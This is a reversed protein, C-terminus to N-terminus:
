QNEAMVRQVAPRAAVFDCLAGLKPFREKIGEYENPHWGCLMYLYLDAASFTVGLVFGSIQSELLALHADFEKLAAEQVGDVSTADPQTTFRQSYYFRLVSGYVSTALFSMWQLFRAHDTTGPMPALHAAGHVSALHICIAASEFMCSGDPLRLAPIKGTPCILRYESTPDSAADSDIWEMTYPVGLEELIFQPAISGGGQRGYLVYETSM